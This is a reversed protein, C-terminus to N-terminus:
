FSFTCVLESANAGSGAIVPYALRSFKSVCVYMFLGNIQSENQFHKINRLVADHAIASVRNAERIMGIEYDDKIVRCSDIADQLKESDVRKFDKGVPRHDPHLIYFTSDPNKEKWDDLDDFLQANLRVADVDYREFSRDVLAGIIPTLCTARM